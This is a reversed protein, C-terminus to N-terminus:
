RTALLIFLCCVLLLEVVFFFRFLLLVHMHTCTVLAHSLDVFSLYTVPKISVAPSTVTTHQAHLTIHAFIFCYDPANTSSSSKPFIRLINSSCWLM